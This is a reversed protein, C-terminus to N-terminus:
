GGRNRERIMADAVRYAHRSLELAGADNFGYISAASAVVQGAFWDRLSMGPRYDHHGDAAVHPFAAGGEPRRPDGDKTNKM